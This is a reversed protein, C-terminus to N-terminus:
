QWLGPPCSRLLFWSDFVRGVSGGRLGLECYRKLFHGTIHEQAFWAPLFFEAVHILFFLCMDKLVGVIERVAAM